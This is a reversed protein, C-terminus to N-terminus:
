NDDDLQEGVLTMLKVAMPTMTVRGELWSRVNRAGVGMLDAFASQTLNHHNLFNRIQQPTM